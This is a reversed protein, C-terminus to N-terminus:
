KTTFSVSTNWPALNGGNPWVNAHYSTMPMLGAITTVGKGNVADPTFVTSESELQDKSNYVAVTYSEPYTSGLPVMQWQLGVTNNGIATTKVGTPPPFKSVTTQARTASGGTSVSPTSQTAFYVLCALGAVLTLVQVLSIYEAASRRPRIDSEAYQSIYQGMGVIGMLISVLLVIWSAVLWSAARENFLDKSLFTASLAITGTALTILTKVYDYISDLAKRLDSDTGQNYRKGAPPTM